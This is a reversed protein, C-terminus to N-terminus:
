QVAQNQRLDRSMSGRLEYSISTILIGAHGLPRDNAFTLKIKIPNSTESVIARVDIVIEFRGGSRSLKAPLEPGSDGGPSLVVARPAPEGFLDQDEGQLVIFPWRYLHSADVELSIGTSVTGDKSVDQIRIPPKVFVHHPIGGIHGQALLLRNQEVWNSLESWYERIKTNMPYPADRGRLPDTLLVIDSQEVLQLATERPTAFIGYTGHGFRAEFPILRHFEEFGFLELTGRNFYDVVRDFSAIPENIGNKLAYEAAERNLRSIEALETRSMHWQNISGEHVFTSIAFILAPMCLLSGIRITVAKRLVKDVRMGIPMNMAWNPRSFALVDVFRMKLLKRPWIAACFLVVTLVIPVVVIGGVVRSKSIDMTLIVLPAIVAAGLALFEFRYCQLRKVLDRLSAREVFLAGAVVGVALVAMVRAALGGVHDIALFKPYFLLHDRVTYLHQEKARIYKEEGLFHGVVYYNYIANRALFLIPCVFIATLLGSLLLNRARQIALRRGHPQRRTNIAFIFGILLTGLIAAVYVVTFFRLLVLFIGVVGVILSRKTDRFTRSWVILCVWIGYLCFAAFDIRYDYIGGAGGGPTMFVAGCLLLLALAMWAFDVNRTRDRVASFLVLQLALFHVLNLSIIATRWPGIIVGLLAGYVTFVLGTAHHAQLLEELFARWGNAEVRDILEYTDLYYSTQDFNRPFYPAYQNVMIFYFVAAEIAFLVILWLIHKDAPLGRRGDKSTLLVIM